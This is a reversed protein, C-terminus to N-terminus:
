AAGLSSSVPTHLPYVSFTLNSPYPPKNNCPVPPHPLSSTWTLFHSHTVRDIETRHVCFFWVCASAWVLSAVAGKHFSVRIMQAGVPPASLCLHLSPYTHVLLGSWWDSSTDTWEYLCSPWSPESWLGVSQVLVSSQVAIIWVNSHWCFAQKSNDEKAENKYCEISKRKTLQRFYM